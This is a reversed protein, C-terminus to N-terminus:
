AVEARIQIHGRNWRERAYSADIPDGDGHAKCSTCGVFQQISGGPSYNVFTSLHKTTGCCPCPKYLAHCNM